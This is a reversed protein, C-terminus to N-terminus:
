PAMGHAVAGADAARAAEETTLVLACEPTAARRAVEELVGVSSVVCQTLIAQVTVRHLAALARLREAVDPAVRVSLCVTAANHSDSM